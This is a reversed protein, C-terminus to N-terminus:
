VPDSLLRQVIPLSAISAASRFVAGCRDAGYTEDYDDEGKQLM